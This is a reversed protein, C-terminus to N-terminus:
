IRSPVLLTGEQRTAESKGRRMMENCWSDGEDVKQVNVWSGGEQQM